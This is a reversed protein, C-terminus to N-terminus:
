AAKAVTETPGKIWAPARKKQTGEASHQPMIIGFANEDAFHVLAPGTGNRAMNPARGDLIDAAKWLKALLAPDFQINHTKADEERDPCNPVVRRWDPFCGDIPKFTIATGDACQISLAGGEAKSLIAGEFVTRNNAKRAPLKLKAVIDTPIIWSGALRDGPERDRRCAFLVHGDTAVYITEAENATVLVGNLYYRTEEKAVCQLAAKLAPVYLSLAHSM